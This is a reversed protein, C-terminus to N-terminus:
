LTSRQAAIGQTRGAVRQEWDPDTAADLTGQFNPAARLVAPLLESVVRQQLGPFQSLAGATIGTGYGIVLASKPNGNHIILPLMAQLRMYRLSPM